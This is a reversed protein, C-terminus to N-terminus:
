GYLKHAEDYDIKRARILGGSLQEGNPDLYLRGTSEKNSSDVGLIHINFIFAPQDDISKFWHINDKFDSVTSCQGPGFKRDITPKIIYHDAQTELRDYHKGEFQGRLILFATAMNNHGHPVVSRGKKMAFIQKGFVLSTPVGEIKQFSFRLSRVGNDALKLNSTLQEFDILELLAPLDVQTYLEEIKTQWDLQSLKGSKADLGLQNVDTLWRTINPKVKDALADCQFLTELLSFTLLSGLTEKAFSRRSLTQM